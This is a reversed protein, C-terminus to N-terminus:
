SKENPRFWVCLETNSVMSHFFGDCEYERGASQKQGTTAGCMLFLMPFIHLHASQLRISREILQSILTPANNSDGSCSVLSVVNQLSGFLLHQNKPRVLRRLWGGSGSRNCAVGRTPPPEAKTTLRSVCKHFCM